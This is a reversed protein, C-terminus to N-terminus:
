SVGIDRERKERRNQVSSEYLAAWSLIGTANGIAEREEETLPYKEKLRLLIAVSERAGLHTEM